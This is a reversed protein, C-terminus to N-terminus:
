RSGYDLSKTTVPNFEQSKINGERSESNQDKMQNLYQSFAYAKQAQEAELLLKLDQQNVLKIDTIKASKYKFRNQLISQNAKKLSENM